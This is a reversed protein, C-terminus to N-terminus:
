DTAFAYPLARFVLKEGSADKLHIDDAEFCPIQVMVLADFGGEPAPQADVVRGAPKGHAASHSFLEDGASPQRNGNIHALYMRRKLTGRHQTRAVVEQGCYCGKSFSIGNLLQMNVMQPIFAEVTAPYIAPIGARIDQLAWFRSDTPTAATALAEWVKKVSPAPGIIEFRPTTGPPQIITLDGAQTVQQPATPLDPLINGLQERAHSGALGIRVLEDSADVLKVASRFVFMSLRKLLAPLTSGPLQFLMEDDSRYFLWGNALMHGKPNCCANFQYQQATLASVDNTFQGQLFDVSDGGTIRILGLYSLDCLASETTPHRQAFSVWGDNAISASHSELFLKWDNHM